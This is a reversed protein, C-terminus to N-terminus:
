YPSDNEEASSGIEVAEPVSDDDDYVYEIERQGSFAYALYM